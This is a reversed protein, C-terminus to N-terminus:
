MKMGQVEIADSYKRILAWASEDSADWASDADGRYKEYAVRASEPVEIAKLKAVRDRALQKQAAAYGRDKDILKAAEEQTIIWCDNTCGPVSGDAPRKPLDSMQLSNLKLSEGCAYMGLDRYEEAWQEKETESFRRAPFIYIGYQATNEVVLFEGSDKWLEFCNSPTPIKARIASKMKIIAQELEQVSESSLFIAGKETVIFSDTDKVIDPLESRKSPNMESVRNLLDFRGRTKTESVEVQGIRVEKNVSKLTLSVDKGTLTKLELKMTKWEKQTNERL